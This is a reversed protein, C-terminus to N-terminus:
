NGKDTTAPAQPVPSVAPITTYPNADSNQAPSPNIGSNSDAGPPAAQASQKEDPKEGETSVTSTEAATEVPLVEARGVKKELATILKSMGARKSAPAHLSQAKKLAKLARAYEHEKTLIIGLNYWPGWRRPSLQTAMETTTEARELNGSKHLAAGLNEYYTYDHSYRQIAKQFMLVAEKYRGARAFRLGQNNLKNAEIWDLYKGKKPFLKSEIYEQEEAPPAAAAAAAPAPAAAFCAPLLPNIYSVCAFFLVFLFHPLNRNM